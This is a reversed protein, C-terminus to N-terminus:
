HRSINRELKRCHEAAIEAAQVMDSAYIDAGISKCFWETVPSGSLLIKTKGRIDAQGAAQVLSKMQPMFITLSTNCAIIEAKEEIAAEIFRLNSVSTGLDIVNLGHSQMLCSIINKETERIDGGLTGIIVTGLFTGQEKKLVPMVIELGTKM